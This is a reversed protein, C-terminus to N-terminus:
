FALERDAYIVDLIKTVEPLPVIESQVKGGTLLSLKTGLTVYTAGDEQIAFKINLGQKIVGAAVASPSLAKEPFWGFYDVYYKGDKGQEERWEKTAVKSYADFAEGITKQPYGNLSNKKLADVASRKPPASKTEMSDGHFKAKKLKSAASSMDVPKEACATVLALALLGLVVAISKRMIEIGELM